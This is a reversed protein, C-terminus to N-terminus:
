KVMTKAENNYYLLVSDRYLAKVSVGECVENLRLLHNKGNIKVLGVLDGKSSVTGAFSINPWLVVPPELKPAPIIKKKSDPQSVIQPESIIENIFPDPYNRQISFTDPLNTETKVVEISQSDLMLDNETYSFFRYGVGCWILVVVFFLILVNKNGKM